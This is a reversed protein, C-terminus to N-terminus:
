YSFHLLLVTPIIKSENHILKKVISLDRIICFFVTISLGPQVRRFNSIYQLIIIFLLTVHATVHSAQIEDKAIGSEWLNQIVNM